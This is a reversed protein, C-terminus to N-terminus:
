IKKKDNRNRGNLSDRLKKSHFLTSVFLVSYLMQIPYAFKGFFRCYMMLSRHQYFYLTPSFVFEKSFYHIFLRKVQSKDLKDLTREICQLVNSVIKLDSQNKEFVIKIKPMVMKRISVEDLWEYVNTVAVLAAGQVQITMSDFANFLLPLIEARIDDMPTKELIVHLNELITVTAQISKPAGFM